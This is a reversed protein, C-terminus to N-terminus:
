ASATPGQLRLLMKKRLRGARAALRILFLTRPPTLRETGAPWWPMANEPWAGKQWATRADGLGYASALRATLAGGQDDNIPFAGLLDVESASPARTLQNLLDHVMPRLDSDLAWDLDLPLEEAFQALDDQFRRIKWRPGSDNDATRLVPRFGAGDREVSLVQGHDGQCFLEMLATVVPLWHGQGFRAPPETDFLFAEMRGAPVPDPRGYLGFYFSTHRAASAPGIVEAIAKYVRGKWGIDILGVSEDGTLGCTGFYDLLLDRRRAAAALIAASVRPAHVFRTIADIRLNGHLEPDDLQHAQIDANVDARVLDVRRLLEDTPLQAASETIWDLAAADIQRVGGLNVVQRGAYLYDMAISMGLKAAMPRAMRLLAQGDRSVFLLRKLGLRQARRLVWLVYAALVPGAVQSAIAAQVRIDASDQSRTAGTLRTLRATGAFLSALGATAATHAEMAQEYRSLQTPTFLRTTVGLRAPSAVDANPNDGLHRLYAPKLQWDQLLQRFLDGSAKTVGHSSSAVLRDGAQLALLGHDTLWQRLLDAPFYTDSIFAIRDGRQRASLIEDVAQAVPRLLRTELRCEAAQITQTEASDLGHMRALEGYIAALDVEQAKANARALREARERASAFDGRQASWLGAAALQAGLLKFLSGPTGVLRVLTTDFVDFSAVRDPQNM